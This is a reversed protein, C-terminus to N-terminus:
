VVQEVQLLQLDGASSNGKKKKKKILAVFSSREFVVV